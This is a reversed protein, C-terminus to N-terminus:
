PQSACVSKCQYSSNFQAYSAQSLPNRPQKPTSPPKMAYKARTMLSSAQGFSVEHQAAPDSDTLPAASKRAEERPYFPVGQRTESVVNDDPGPVMTELIRSFLANMKSPRQEDEM